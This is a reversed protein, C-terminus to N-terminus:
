NKFLEKFFLAWLKACLVMDEIEIYENATHALDKKAPLHMLVPIGAKHIYKGVTNGGTTMTKIEIGLKEAAKMFKEVLFSDREIKHPESEQLIELKLDAGPIERKVEEIAKNVENLIDFKNLKPPFRIDFIARAKAPVMNPAEGGEIKGLNVTVGSFDEDIEYKGFDLDKLKLSLTLIPYIANFGSQPSSGHAEKGISEIQLWLIGKEGIEIKNIYGADPVFAYDAKFGNKLLFKLGKESGTEEDSCVVFIIQGNFKESAQLFSKVALYATALPGKDDMAGRGFIKGDKIVPEFPNTEWGEGAPVVDAHLIVALSPTGKGMRAIINPRNREAELIEIDAGLDSLKGVLIEKVLYENGPPNTTNKSIIKCALDLMEEKNKEVAELIEEAM